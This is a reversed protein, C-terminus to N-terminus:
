ARRSSSRSLPFGSVASQRPRSNGRKSLRGFQGSSRGREEGEAGDTGREAGHSLMHVPESPGADVVEAVAREVRASTSDHASTESTRSSARTRGGTGSKMGSSQVAEVAPVRQTACQRPRSNRARLSVASHGSTRGREEGEAGDFGGDAGHRLVHVPEPPGAVVVEAVAREVRASTSDHASTESTRVAYNRRGREPSAAIQGGQM